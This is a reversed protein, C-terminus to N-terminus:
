PCLFEEVTKKRIDFPIPPRSKKFRKQYAKEAFEKYGTANLNLDELVRLVLESLINERIEGRFKIAMNNHALEHILIGLTLIKDERLHLLLPHSSSPVGDVLFIDIEREVYEEWNYGSYQPILNLIRDVYKSFFTEFEEGLAKIKRWTQEFDKEPHFERLKEEALKKNYKITIKPIM